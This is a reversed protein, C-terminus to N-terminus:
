TVVHLKKAGLCKTWSSMVFINQMGYQLVIDGLDLGVRFQM